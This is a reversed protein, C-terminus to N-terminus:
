DAAACRFGIDDGRYNSVAKYRFSTRFFKVQTNFWGGGRLSYPGTAPVSACDNYPYACYKSSSWERVSGALDHIGEPTDGAPYAGVECALVPPAQDGTHANYYDFCLLTHNPATAGWPYVRNATGSAAYEWEHEAPLRKGKWACYAAAEDHSVCNMAYDGYTQTGSLYNYYVTGPGNIGMCSGNLGDVTGFSTNSSPPVACGGDAVCLAYDNVTVETADLWFAPVGVAAEPGEDAEGGNMGMQFSGGDFHVMNAPPTACHRTLDCFGGTCDASGTCAKGAGCKGCNGGCDVDVEAGNKVGDKCPDVGADPTGADEPTGTDTGADEPAGADVGPNGGDGGGTSGGTGGDAPPCVCHDLQGDDTCVASGKTTGCGCLESPGPSCDGTTGGCGALGVGAVALAALTWGRLTKMKM